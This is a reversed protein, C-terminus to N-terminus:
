GGRGWISGRVWGSHQVGRDRSSRGGHRVWHRARDVGVIVKLVERGALEGIGERGREIGVGKSGESRGPHQRRGEGLGKM